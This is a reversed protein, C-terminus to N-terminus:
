SGNLFSEHRSLFPLGDNIERVCLAHAPPIRGHIRVSGRAYMERCDALVPVDVISIHVVVLM